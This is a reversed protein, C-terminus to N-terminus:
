ELGVWKGKEYWKGENVLAFTLFKSQVEAYREKNWIDLVTEGM